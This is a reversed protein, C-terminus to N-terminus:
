QGSIDRISELVTRRGNTKILELHSEVTLARGDKSVQRLEGNWTGDRLLIERVSELSSGPVETKLLV